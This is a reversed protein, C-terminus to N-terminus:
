KGDGNEVLNFEKVIGASLGKISDSGSVTVAASDTYLREREELVERVEEALPKGTLSPRQGHEPNASLRKVLTDVDTKLYVTYGDKLIEINEPRVVIGGGCSIVVNDLKSLDKLVKAELDRFADWGNYEVFISIACGAKELIVADSDYFDFQLAKAVARGVTTKGCARPGILYIKNM